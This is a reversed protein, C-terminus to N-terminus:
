FRAAFHNVVTDQASYNEIRFRRILILEIKSYVTCYKNTKQAPCAMSQSRISHVSFSHMKETQESHLCCKMSHMVEAQFFHMATSLVYNSRLKSFYLMETNFPHISPFCLLSKKTPIMHEGGNSTNYVPLFLLIQFFDFAFDFVVLPKRM